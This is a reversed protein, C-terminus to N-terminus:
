VGIGAGVVGVIWGGEPREGGGLVGGGGGDEGASFGKEGGACIGVSAVGLVLGKKV